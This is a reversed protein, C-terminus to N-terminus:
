YFLLFNIFIQSVVCKKFEIDFSIFENFFSNMSDSESKESANTM